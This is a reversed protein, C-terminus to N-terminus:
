DYRNLLLSGNSAWSATEVRVDFEQVEGLRDVVRLELLPKDRGLHEWSTATRGPVPARTPPQPTTM